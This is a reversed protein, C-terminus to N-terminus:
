SSIRQSLLESHQGVLNLMLVPLEIGIGELYSEAEFAERIERRMLTENINFIFCTAVCLRCYRSYTTCDHALNIKKLADVRRPLVTLLYEAVAFNGELIARQLPTRGYNDVVELIDYRSPCCKEVLFQVIDVNAKRSSVAWNIITMGCGSYKTEFIRLVYRIDLAKERIVSYFFKLEDLDEFNVIKLLLDRLLDYLNRSDKLTPYFLRMEKLLNNIQDWNKYPQRLEQILFDFRARREVEEVEEVKM